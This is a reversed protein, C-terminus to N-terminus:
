AFCQEPPTGPVTPAPPTFTVTASTDSSNYATVCESVFTAHSALETVLTSVLASVHDQFPTTMATSSALATHPGAWRGTSPKPWTFTESQGSLTDSFTALEKGFTDLGTIDVVFEGM